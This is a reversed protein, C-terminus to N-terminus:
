LNLNVIFRGERHMEVLHAFESNAYVTGLPTGLLKDLCWALPRAAPFLIFLFFYVLWLTHYGVILPHRSAIAQPLIEGLIVIGITSAIFGVLGTTKDALLISILSNVMVNGLLLTCLLWNHHKRVPLIAKAYKANREDSGNSVIQLGSIDLSLLGLNLGSFCGSLFFLILIAIWEGANQGASKAAANPVCSCNTTDTLGACVGGVDEGAPTFDQLNRRHNIEHESSFSSVLNYTLVLSAFSVFRHIHHASVKMKEEEGWIKTHTSCSWEVWGYRELFFGGMNGSSLLVFGIANKM